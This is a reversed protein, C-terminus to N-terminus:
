ITSNQIGPTGVALLAPHFKTPMIALLVPDKKDNAV